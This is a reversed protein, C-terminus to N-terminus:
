TSTIMTRFQTAILIKINRRFKAWIAASAIGYIELVNINRNDIAIQYQPSIKGIYSCQKRQKTAVPL